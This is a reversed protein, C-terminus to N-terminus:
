AQRPGRAVFLAGCGAVEVVIDRFRTRLAARLGDLDDAENSFIGRRNYAQMLTRAAASREVGGSLLIAGFMVGGPQLLPTLHDFAAAKEAIPGPLCHLLYTLAISGFPPADIAIPRLVDAQYSHPRYRAIRRSAAALSSANLDMLGIRPMASPFRCSDLYWGTGVGVDLHEGSAHTEYLSLIRRTPCRWILSNSVRLVVLDYLALTFPSYVAQGAHTGPAGSRENDM